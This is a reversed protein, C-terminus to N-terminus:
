IERFNIQTGARYFCKYEPNGNGGVIDGTYTICIGSNDVLDFTCGNFNSSEKCLDFCTEETFGKRNESRGDEDGKADICWGTGIKWNGIDM